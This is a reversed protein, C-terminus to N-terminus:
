FILDSTLRFLQAILENRHLLFRSRLGITRLARPLTGGFGTIIGVLRGGFILSGEGSVNNRMGVRCLGPTPMIQASGRAATCLNNDLPAGPERLFLTLPEWHRLM